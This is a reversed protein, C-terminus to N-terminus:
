REDREPCRCTGSPPDGQLRVAAPPDHLARGTCLWRTSAPRMSQPQRAPRRVPRFLHRHPARRRGDDSSRCTNSPAWNPAGTRPVPMTGTPTRTDHVAGPRSQPLEQGAPGPGQRDADVFHPETWSTLKLPILHIRGRLATGHSSISSPASLAALHPRIDNLDCSRTAGDAGTRFNRAPAPPAPRPRPRAAQGM